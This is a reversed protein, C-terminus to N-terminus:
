SSGQFVTRWFTMNGIVTLPLYEFSAFGLM